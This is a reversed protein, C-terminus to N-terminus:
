SNSAPVAILDAEIQQATLPGHLFHWANCITAM